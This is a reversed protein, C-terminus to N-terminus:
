SYEKIGYLSITAEAINGTTSLFVRLGSCQNATTYVNSGFSFRPTHVDQKIVTQFTGFTYKTSDIANYIYAYGNASANTENDVNPLWIFQSFSTTKSESFTGASNGLQQAFQYGSTQATGGVKVRIDLNQATTSASQVNNASLFHANYDGLNDFDYSTVTDDAVVTEILELQGYQTYKDARTLDYIDTPTFIGKNNGFSQEPAEPIYGFESM